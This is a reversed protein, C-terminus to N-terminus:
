TRCGASPRTTRRTLPVGAFLCRFLLRPAAHAARVIRKPAQTMRQGLLPGRRRSSHGVCRQRAADIADRMPSTVMARLVNLAACAPSYTSPSVVAFLVGLFAQAAADDPLVETLRRLPKTGVRRGRSDYAYGASQGTEASPGFLARANGRVAHLRRCQATRRHGSMVAEPLRARRSASDWCADGDLQMLEGKLVDLQAVVTVADGAAVASLLGAPSFTSM